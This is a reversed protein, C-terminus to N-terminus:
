VNAIPPTGVNTTLPCGSAEPACCSDTNTSAKPSAVAASSLCVQLRASVQEHVLWKFDCDGASRETPQHRAEFESSRARVNTNVLAGLACGIIATGTNHHLRLRQMNESRAAPQALLLGPNPEIMPLIEGGVAAKLRTLAHRLEHSRPPEKIASQAGCKRRASPEREDM